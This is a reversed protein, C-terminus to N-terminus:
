MNWLVMEAYSTGDLLISTAPILFMERLNPLLLMGGLTCIVALLLMPAQMSAPVEKISKWKPRLEGLFGYRLVKTFSALTLISAIVALSAYITHGAQVAAFIILLKSWFGNFPPIGAISMSAVFSTTGTM